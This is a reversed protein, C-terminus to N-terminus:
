SGFHYVITVSAFDNFRWKEEIAGPALNPIQITDTINCPLKERCHAAPASRRSRYAKYQSAM